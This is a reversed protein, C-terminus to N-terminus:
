CFPSFLHCLLLEEFDEPSVRMTNLQYVAADIPNVWRYWYDYMWVRRHQVFFLQFLETGLWQESEARLQWVPDLIIHVATMLDWRRDDQAATRRDLTAQREVQEYASVVDLGQEAFKEVVLARDLSLHHKLCRFMHFHHDACNWFRSVLWLHQTLFGSGQQYYKLQHLCRQVVEGIGWTNYNYAIYDESYEADCSVCLHLGRSLVTPGSSCRDCAVVDCWILERTALWARYAAETYLPQYERSASEGYFETAWCPERFDPWKRVAMWTSNQAAPTPMLAGLYVPPVLRVSLTYTRRRQRVTMRGLDALHPLTRSEFVSAAFETAAPTMTYECEEEVELYPRDVARPRAPFPVYGPFVWNDLPEM